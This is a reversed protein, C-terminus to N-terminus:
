FQNPLHQETNFVTCDHAHDHTFIDFTLANTHAGAWLRLSPHHWAPLHLSVKISCLQMLMIVLWGLASWFRLSTPSPHQTVFWLFLLRLCHVYCTFSLYPMQTCKHWFSFCLVADDYKEDKDSLFIFLQAPASACIPLCAFLSVFVCHGGCLFMSFLSLCCHVSMIDSSRVEFM